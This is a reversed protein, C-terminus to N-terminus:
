FSYGITLEGDLAASYKTIKEFTSMQLGGISGPSGNEGWRFTSFPIGAGARFVYNLKTKLFKDRWGYYVGVISSKVSYDYSIRNLDAISSKSYTRKFFAGVFNSNMKRNFHYRYSLGANYGSNKQITTFLYSGEAVIGHRHLLLFEYNMPFAGLLIDWPASHIAHRKNDVTDTTEFQSFAPGNMLLFIFFFIWKKMFASVDLTSANPL